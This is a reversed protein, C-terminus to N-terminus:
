NQPKYRTLHTIYQNPTPRLLGDTTYKMLVVPIFKLDVLHIVGITERTTPVVFLGNIPDYDPLGRHFQWNLVAPMPKVPIRGQDIALTLSYQEICRETEDLKNQLLRNRVSAFGQGFMEAWIAWSPSNGRLAFVGTNFSPQQGYDAAIQEGFALRYSEQLLKALHQAEFRIRQPGNPTPMTFDVGGHDSERVIAIAGDAAADWLCEIQSWEQVWADCDIWSYIEYGPFYNPLFPRATMARYWGPLAAESLGPIDWGPETVMCDLAQLLRVQRDTLGIDLVCVPVRDPAKERISHLLGLLLFFYESNSATCICTKPM